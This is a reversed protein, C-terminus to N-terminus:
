AVSGGQAQQAPNHQWAAGDRMIANLITLLKRMCATLAVKAPKGAARLREYFSKIVPNYRTGVLAGMFLVRRAAARGGFIKRRGEFKGSQWNYPAVGALAAIQQRNIQGLEPLYALLTATLIPGVGPVSEILEAKRAMEEHSDIATNIDKLLEARHAKLQRIHAKILAKIGPSVHELRHSEMVIMEGLETLRAMREALFRVEPPPRQRPAPTKEEGFKALVHADVGDTKALIGESEAFCRVLRPNIRAYLLRATELADELRRTYSGAEFIVFTPPQAILWTVLKAVGRRNNAFSRLPAPATTAVDLQAKSVDIGFYVPQM